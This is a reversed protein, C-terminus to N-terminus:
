AYREPPTPPDGGRAEKIADFLSRGPTGLSGGRCYPPRRARRWEELRPVHPVHDRDANWLALYRRFAPGDPQGAASDRAAAIPGGILDDLRALAALAEARDERDDDPVALDVVAAGPWGSAPPLAPGGLAVGRGTGVSEDDPLAPPSPGARDPGLAAEAVGKAFTWGRAMPDMSGAPPRYDAIRELAHRAIALEQRARRHDLWTESPVIYYWAGGIAHAGRVGDPNAEPGLVDTTLYADRRSRGVHSGVACGVLALAAGLVIALNLPIAM